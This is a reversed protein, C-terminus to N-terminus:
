RATYGGDVHLVTGTVGSALDSFLFAAAGRELVSSCTREVPEPVDVASRAIAAAEAAPRFVQVLDVPGPVDELREYARLGAPRRRVGPRRPLGPHRARVQPCRAVDRRDGGETDDPPDSRHRGRAPRDDHSWRTSCM